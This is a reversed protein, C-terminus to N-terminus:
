NGGEVISITCPNVVSIFPCVQEQVYARSMRNAHHTISLFVWLRSFMQLVVCLIIFMFILGILIGLMAFDIGDPEDPFEPDNLGLVSKNVVSGGRKSAEAEVPGGKRYPGRLFLYIHLIFFVRLSDCHTYYCKTSFILNSRHLTNHFMLPLCRGRGGGLDIVKLCCVNSSCRKSKRGKKKVLKCRQSVDVKKKRYVCTTNDSSPAYLYLCKCTGHECTSYKIDFSCQEAKTCVEGFDKKELCAKRSKVHVPHSEPCSCVETTSNCYAPGSINATCNADSECIDGIKTIEPMIFLCFPQVKVTRLPINSEKRLTIM